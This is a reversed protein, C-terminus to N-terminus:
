ISFLVYDFNNIIKYWDLYTLVENITPKTNMGYKIGCIIGGFSSVGVLIMRTVKDDDFEPIGKIICLFVFKMITLIAIIIAFTVFLFSKVFNSM